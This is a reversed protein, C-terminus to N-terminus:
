YCWSVEIDFGLTCGNSPVNDSLWQSVSRPDNTYLVDLTTGYQPDFDVVSDEVRQLPPATLHVGFYRSDGTRRSSMGSFAAVGSLSLLLASCCRAKRRKCPHSRTTMCM